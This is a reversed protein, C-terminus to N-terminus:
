LPGETSSPCSPQLCRQRWAQPPSPHCDPTPLLTDFPTGPLQTASKYCLVARRELLQRHGPVALGKEYVMVRPLHSRTTCTECPSKPSDARLECHQRGGLTVTQPQKRPLVSSAAWRGAALGV